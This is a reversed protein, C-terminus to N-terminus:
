ILSVKCSYQTSGIQINAIANLSDLREKPTLLGLEENKEM